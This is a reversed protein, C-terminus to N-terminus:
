PTHVPTMMSAGLIGGGPGLAIVRWWYNMGPALNEMTMQSLALM